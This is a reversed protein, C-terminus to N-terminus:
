IIIESFNPWRSVSMVFQKRGTKKKVKQCLFFMFVKRIPIIVQPVRRRLVQPKDTEFADVTEEMVDLEGGFMEECMTKNLNKFEM